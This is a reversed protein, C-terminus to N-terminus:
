AFAPPMPRPPGQRRAKGRRKIITGLERGGGGAGACAGVVRGEGVKPANDYFFRLSNAPSKASICAKAPKSALPYISAFYEDLTKIASGCAAESRNIALTHGLNKVAYAANAAYAAAAGVEIGLKPPNPVEPRAEKLFNSM